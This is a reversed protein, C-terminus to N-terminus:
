TSNENPKRVIWAVEIDFRKLVASKITFTAGNQSNAFYDDVDTIELVFEGKAHYAGCCCHGIRTDCPDICANHYKPWWAPWAEAEIQRIM